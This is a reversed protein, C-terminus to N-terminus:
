ISEESESTPSDLPVSSPKTQVLHIAPRSKWAGRPFAQMSIDLKGGCPDVAFMTLGYLSPIRRGGQRTVVIWQAAILEDRAKYLTEKSKWGRPEMQTWVLCLDGNNYGNYQGMLDILLKVSNASLM